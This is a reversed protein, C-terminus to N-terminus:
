DANTFTTTTRFGESRVVFDFPCLAGAPITRTSDVHEELRTPPNAAAPGSLILACAVVVSFGLKGM